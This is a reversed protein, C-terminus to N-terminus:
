TENSLIESSNFGYVSDAKARAAYGRAKDEKTGQYSLFDLFKTLRLIYKDRTAPAKVAYLFLMRPDTTMEIIRTTQEEEVDSTARVGREIV